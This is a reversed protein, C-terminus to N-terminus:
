TIQQRIKTQINTALQAEDLVIDTKKYTDEYLKSPNGRWPDDHNDYARESTTM